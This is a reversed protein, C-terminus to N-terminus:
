IVFPAICLFGLIGGFPVLRRTVIYAVGLALIVVATASVGAYLFSNLVSKAATAHEFLGSNFNRVSLNDHAFGRGWARAFAPPLLFLYPLFLSLSAILMAYGFMAWRWRGLRIPRREGGKATLAVFGKRRTMMRQILILAITVALLPMAYAAAVEVRVPN